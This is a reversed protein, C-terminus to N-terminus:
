KGKMTNFLAQLVLLVPFAAMAFLLFQTAGTITM